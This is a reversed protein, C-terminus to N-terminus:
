GKASIQFQPSERIGAALPPLIESRPVQPPFSERLRRGARACYQCRQTTNQNDSGSYIEAEMRVFDPYGYDSGALKPRMCVGRSGISPFGVGDAVHELPMNGIRSMGPDEFGDSHAAVFTANDRGLIGTM